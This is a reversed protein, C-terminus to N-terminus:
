SSRHVAPRSSIKPVPNLRDDFLAARTGGDGSRCHIFHEFFMKLPKTALKHPADIRCKACHCLFYQRPGHAHLRLHAHVCIQWRVCALVAILFYGRKM